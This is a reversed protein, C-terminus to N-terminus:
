CIRWMPGPARRTTSFTRQFFILQENERWHPKYHKSLLRNLDRLKALKLRVRKEIVQPNISTIRKGRKLLSKGEGINKNYHVEGRVVCNNGTKTKSVVLRKCPQLKFHWQVPKKLVELVAKKWDLVPCNDGLRIVTAHKRFITIYDQDTLLTSNKKVDKEIQAFVRNPSIFSHGVIPFIIKIIKLTAPADQMLFKSMMGVIM